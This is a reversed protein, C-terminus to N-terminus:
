IDRGILYCTMSLSGLVCSENFVEIQDERDAAGLVYMLPYFHEPTFFAKKAAEGENGFDAAGLFDKKLIRDKIYGDFEYAWTYGRDMGWNILSLNHVINGSGFILAGEKRLEYLKQGLVFHEAASLNRDISFQFVPIDAKPYMKVLVAWTGHDLGWSNDAQTDNELLGKVKRAFEPSGKPRYVVEYLGKPFGYMDYVTKPEASDNVKTGNTYWHASVSIIVRPRPIAQAITEWGRTFENDELANMPSGHGAFLVPMMEKDKNM